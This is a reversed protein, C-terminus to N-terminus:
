GDTKMILTSISSRTLDTLSLSRGRFAGPFQTILALHNTDIGGDLHLVKAESCNWMQNFQAWTWRNMYQLETRQVGLDTIGIDNLRDHIFKESFLYQAYPMFLSRYAHLGWPSCYLPGFEFFLLGGPKTVRMAEYYAKAPDPFHEFSNYSVVLDFGNPGFPLGKTIDASEFSVKKGMRSRWDEMDTLIVEHGYNTLISGLVGDGAGIDLIKKGPVEMNPLKLIQFARQSAREFLSFEDYKYLDGRNSPYSKQLQSFAVESPETEPPLDSSIIDNISSRFQFNRADNKRKHYNGRIKKVYNKFSKNMKKYVFM